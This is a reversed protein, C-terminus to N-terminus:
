HSIHLCQSSGWSGAVHPLLRKQVPLPRGLEDITGSDRTSIVTGGATAFRKIAAATKTSLVTANQLLLVQLWPGFQAKISATDDTDLNSSSIITGPAGASQTAEM